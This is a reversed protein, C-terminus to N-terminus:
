RLAAFIARKFYNDPFARASFSGCRSEPQHRAIVGFWPSSEKLHQLRLSQLHVLGDCKERISSVRHAIQCFTVTGKSRVNQVPKMDSHPEGHQTLHSFRHWDFVFALFELLFQLPHFPEKPV